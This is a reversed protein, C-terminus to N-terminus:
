GDLEGFDFVQVINPHNLRASLRAEAIFMAVFRPDSCLHPLIRKLVVVREFDRAGHAKAKWVEAM